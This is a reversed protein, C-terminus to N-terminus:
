RRRSWRSVASRGPRRGGPRGLLAAATGAAVLGLAVTLLPSADLVVVNTVTAGAMLGALGLAAAGALRPVLLGVAGAVELAGVLHRLGHGAGIDDFMSVMAPDGGLKALGAGAFVAALGVRAVWLAVTRPQPTSRHRLTWTTM